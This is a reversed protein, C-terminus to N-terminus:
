IGISDASRAGKPLKVVNIDCARNATHHLGCVVPAPTVRCFCVRSGTALMLGTEFIDGAIKRRAPAFFLRRTTVHPISAFALAATDRRHFDKM